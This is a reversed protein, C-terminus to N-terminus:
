AEYQSPLCESSPLMLQVLLLYQLVNSDSINQVCKKNGTVVSIVQFLIITNDHLYEMSCVCARM